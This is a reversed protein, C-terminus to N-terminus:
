ARSAMTRDCGAGRRMTAAMSAVKTTTPVATALATWPEVDSVSLDRWRAMTSVYGDDLKSWGISPHLVRAYREFGAPIWEGVRGAFRLGGAVWAMPRHDRLPEQDIRLLM